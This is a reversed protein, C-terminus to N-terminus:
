RAVQTRLETLIQADSERAPDFVRTIKKDPTLLFLFISHNIIDREPAAQAWVGLRVLFEDFATKDIGYPLAFTWGDLHAGFQRRYKKIRATDDHETDFSVTVLQLKQPVLSPQLARYIGELRNNIKHCVFPCNLYVFNVLTYKKANGLRFIKGDQDVLDIPALSRPLSGATQLTHSFVTFATFGRTWVGLGLLALALVLTPAIFHKM